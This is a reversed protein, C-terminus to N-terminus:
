LHQAFMDSIYIAGATANSAVALMLGSGGYSNTAEAAWVLGTATLTTDTVLASSNWATAPTTSYFVTGNAAIGIASGGATCASGPYWAMSLLPNAATSLATYSWTSGLDTTTATRGYNSADYGAGVFGPSTATPAWTLSTFYASSPRTGYLTSTWTVGGDSTM